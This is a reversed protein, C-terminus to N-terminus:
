PHRDHRCEAVLLHTSSRRGGIQQGIETAKRSRRRQLSRPFEEGVELMGHVSGGVFPMDAAVVADVEPGDREEGDIRGIAAAVAGVAVRVVQEVAALGHVDGVVGLARFLVHPQLPFQALGLAATRDDKHLKVVRRERGAGVTPRGALPRALVLVGPLGHPAQCRQESLEAHPGDERPMVAHIFMRDHVPHVIVIDADAAVAQPPRLLAHDVVALDKKGVVMRGLVPVVVHQLLPALM